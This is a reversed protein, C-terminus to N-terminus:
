KEVIRVDVAKLSDLHVNRQPFPIEINADRLAANVAVNLESRIRVWEDFRSTWVRMEFDLSSQGFGLFLAVAPPETLVLPHNAAVQSLLELVREPDTGYAVGVNVDIRRLRDSLTWNTVVESILSANPVIVESGQPTRIASSRIGIRRVEGIIEGLQVTDGVQVPREFLLIIGSVFNNIINQMGFGIGVGFAGALITFRNLDLGMAAFALFFGVLLFGYHVLTSIAYPVGRAVELRPFVDEGLVFRVFRSLAFSLWVTVAFAVLNGLSLHIEGVTIEAALGIRVGSTLPVLLDLTALTTSVWTGWAAWRLAQNIRREVVPQQTLKVRGAVSSRLAFAILGQVVRFSAYLGIALYGSTLFGSGLWEALRMYGLTAAVLSFAFVAILGRAAYELMRGVAAGRSYHTLSMRGTSVLWLIAVIGIAMQLFFLVQGAELSIDVLRRLRDFVFFAAFAYVVPLLSNDILRRLIRVTPPLAALALLQSFVRPPAPYIWLAALTSALFASSVPLEFVPAAKLVQPNREVWGPLRQRIMTLLPVLCGFILAHLVVYAANAVVYQRLAVAQRSLSEAVQAAVDGSAVASWPIEWLRPSDRERLHTVIQVRLREIERHVGAKRALLEAVQDQLLLLVDRIGELRKRTRDIDTLSNTALEVIAAPAAQQRAADRTAEWTRRMGRTRELLAEIERIRTTLAAQWAELTRGAEVWSVQLSDLTAPSPSDGLLKVAELQLDNVQTRLEPLKQKIEETEPLTQLSAEIDRLLSGSERAGVPVEDLPVPAAVTTPTAAPAPEAAQGAAPWPTVALLCFFAVVSCAVRLRRDNEM